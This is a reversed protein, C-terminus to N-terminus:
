YNRPTGTFPDRRESGCIILRQSETNKLPCDDESEVEKEILDCYPTRYDCSMNYKCFACPKNKEM